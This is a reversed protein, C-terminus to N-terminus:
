SELEFTKEGVSTIPEAPPVLCARTGLIPRPPVEAVSAVVVVMEGCELDRALKCMSEM